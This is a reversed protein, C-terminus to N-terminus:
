EDGTKDERGGFPRFAEPAPPHEPDPEAVVYREGGRLVGLAETKLATKLALNRGLLSEAVLLKTGPTGFFREKLAPAKIDDLPENPRDLYWVAENSSLGLLVVPQGQLKDRVARYFKEHNALREAVPRGVMEFGLSVVAAMSLVLLSAGFRRGRQMEGAARWACAAILACLAILRARESPALPPLTQIKSKPNRIASQPNPVASQPNPIPAHWTFGSGAVLVAAGLGLVLARWGRGVPIGERTLLAEDWAWALALSIYPYLPLLYLPRKSVAIGLFFFSVFLACLLFRAPDPNRTEPKPKRLQRLGWWAAALLPIAWLAFNEGLTGLYFIFPWPHQTHDKAGIARLVNETWYVSGTNYGSRQVVVSWWMGLAVSLPVGWWLGAHTLDGLRRTWFLYVLLPVVVFMGVLFPGKTLCALGLCLYFGLLPLFTNARPEQSKARPQTRIRELAIHVFLWAWVIFATLTMDVVLERSVKHFEGSTLLVGAAILGFRASRLRVGLLFTGVLTLLGMLLPGVRFATVLDLGAAQGAKGTVAILWYLLPPKVLRPQANFFPVLWDQLSDARLMTRAAAAYRPEDPNAITQIHINWVTILFYAASLVLLSTWLRLSTAPQLEANM